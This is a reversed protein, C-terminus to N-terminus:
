GEKIAYIVFNPITLNNRFPSTSQIRFSVVRIEKEPAVTADVRSFQLTFVLSPKLLSM